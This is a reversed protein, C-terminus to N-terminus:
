VGSGGGGSSSKGPVNVGSYQSMNRTLINELPGMVRKFTSRDLTLVRTDEVAIVTAKRPQDTLLAIEGFYGGDKVRLVEEESGDGKQKMCKVVGKEVIYFKDGIDGERIITTGAPITETKLADAITLREYELLGQLLPVKELFHKHLERKKMTTDMLIVKFTLRDLAWLKCFGKAKVTAARPANYMLALEGFSDGQKYTLVKIPDAGEKQVYVEPNGEEVVYFLDGPDGQQIIVEGDDKDVPYMADIVIQTQESDLNQFLLNKQLIEHLKKQEAESKKFVKREKEWKQKLKVPDVGSEASVAIRRRNGRPKPLEDVIDEDDDDSEESSSEEREAEFEQPYM